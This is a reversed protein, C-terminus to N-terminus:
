RNSKPTYDMDLLICLWDRLFLLWLNLKGLLIFITIENFFPFLPKALSLSGNYTWWSPPDLPIGNLIIVCANSVKLSFPAHM